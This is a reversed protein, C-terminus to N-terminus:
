SGIVDWMVAIMIEFILSPLVLWFSVPINLKSFDM